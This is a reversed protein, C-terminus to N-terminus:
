KKWAKIMWPPLMIKGDVYKEQTEGPNIPAIHVMVFKHDPQHQLTWIPSGKGVPGYKFSHQKGYNVTGGATDFKVEELAKIMPESELTKAKEAAYKISYIAVYPGQASMHCTGLKKYIYDWIVKTQPTIPVHAPGFNYTTLYACKGGTQEWFAPVGGLVQTGAWIAPVEMDYWQRILPLSSKYGMGGVIIHAGSKKIASLEVSADTTTTSLRSEYVIDYGMEKFRKIYKGHSDDQWKAADTLIALKVKEIRLEKKLIATMYPVQEEITYQSQGDMVDQPADRFTYKYRNYDKAITDIWDHTAGGSLIAVKKLDCAAERTAMTEESGFCGILFDVKDVEVLKHLANVAGASKLQSDATFLEIPRGLIGGAKNIEEIALEGSVLQAKGYDWTLPGVYGIKIPNDKPAALLCDIYVFSIWLAFAATGLLRLLKRM